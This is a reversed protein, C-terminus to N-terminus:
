TFYIGSAHSSESQTIVAYKYSSVDITNNTSANTFTEFDNTLRVIPYGSSGTAHYTTYSGINAIVSWMDAKTGSGSNGGWADSSSTPLDDVQILSSNSLLGKGAELFTEKSPVCKIYAM